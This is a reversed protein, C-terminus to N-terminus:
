RESGGRSAMGNGRNRALPVTNIWLPAPWGTRTQGSDDLKKALGFDTIKPTGDATLLVVCRGPPVFQPAEPSEL